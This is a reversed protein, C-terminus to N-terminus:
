MINGQEDMELEFLLSDNVRKIADLKEIRKQEVINQLNKKFNTGGYTKRMHDGWKQAVIESVRELLAPDRRWVEHILKRTLAELEKDGYFGKSINSKFEKLIFGSNVFVSAQSRRSDYARAM